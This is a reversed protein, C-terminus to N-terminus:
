NIGYREKDILYNHYVEDDTLARNYIRVLYINGKFFEETANSGNPNAGIAVITSNSPATMTGGVDVGQVFKGSKYINLSTQNFVSTYNYISSTGLSTTDINCVYAGNYRVCSRFKNNYTTTAFGGTQWNAVLDQSGTSTASQKFITDITHASTLDIQGVSVWTSSGNFTLYKDGWTGSTIAGDYTSVSASNKWTTTTTNRGNSTNYLGDYWVLLGDRVYGNLPESYANVRKGKSTEQIIDNIVETWTSNDASVSTINDIYTRGDFYRWVAVEDLDYTSGLDITVCKTGTGGSGYNEKDLIGDTVYASGGAGTPTKGKALNIGDKIAQLEVWVNYTSATAGNTCDKIYRVNNLKTNTKSVLGVYKIYVRGAGSNKALKVDGNVFYKETFHLTNNTVTGSSNVMNSGAYGSIFSDTYDSGGYSASMIRARLGTTSSQTLDSSSPESDFYRIDTSNTTGTNGTYIYLKEDKNLYIYGSTMSGNVSSYYPGYAEIYYYGSAPATYTRRSSSYAYNTEIDFMDSNAFIAEGTHLGNPDSPQYYGVANIFVTIEEGIVDNGVSEDLWFYFEFIMDGDDAQACIEEYLTETPNDFSGYTFSGSNGMRTAYRVHEYDINDNIAAYINTYMCTDISNSTLKFRYPTQSTGETTNMPYIEGSITNGYSTGYGTCNEDICMDFGLQDVFINGISKEDITFYIAYTVGFFTITLGIITLVTIFIEKKIDKLLNM